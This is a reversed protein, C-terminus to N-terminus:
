RKLVRLNKDIQEETTMGIVLSTKLSKANEIISEYNEEKTNCLMKGQMFLSRLIIEINHKKYTDLHDIIWKNEVNYPAEIVDINELVINPLIDNYGNPLSIGIKKTLGITKLEVLWSLLNEDDNWESAWNHLLLIDVYDRKLNQLSTNLCNVIYKYDYYENLPLICNSNPKIKSPIKTLIVDNEDTTKSLLKEVKGKGYVLATDFLNIGNSKAYKILNIMEEDTFQKFDGSFQWTGLYIKNNAGNKLKQIIMDLLEINKTKLYKNIYETYEKPLSEILEDIRKFSRLYKYEYACVARIIALVIDNSFLSHEFESLNPKNNLYSQKIEIEEISDSIIKNRGYISYKKLTNKSNELFNNNDKIINIQSLDGIFGESVWYGTAWTRHECPVKKGTVFNEIIKEAKVLSYIAISIECSCLNNIKIADDILFTDCNSFVERILLITERVDPVIFLFDLDNYEDCSAGSGVLGLAGTINSLRKKIIEIDNKKAM